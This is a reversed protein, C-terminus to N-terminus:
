RVPGGVRANANGPPPDISLSTADKPLERFTISTTDTVSFSQESHAPVFEATFSNGHGYRTESSFRHSSHSEVVVPWDHTTVTVTTTM